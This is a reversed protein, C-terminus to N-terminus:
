EPSEGGAGGKLQKSINLAEQMVQEQSRHAISAAWRVCVAAVQILEVFQEGSDEPEMLLEALEECLIDWWNLQGMKMRMEVIYRAYDVSGPYMLQQRTSARDKLTVIAHFGPLHHTGFKKEQRLLEFRVAELVVGLSTEHLPQVMLPPPKVGVTDGGDLSVHPCLTSRKADDYVAGCFSRRDGDWLPACRVFM